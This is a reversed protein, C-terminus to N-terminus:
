ELDNGELDHIVASTNAKKYHYKCKVWVESQYGLIVSAEAVLRTDMMKEMGVMLSMGLFPNKDFQEEAYFEILLKSMAVSWSMTQTRNGKFSHLQGPILTTTSTTLLRNFYSGNPPKKTADDFPSAYFEGRAVDAVAWASEFQQGTVPDVRDSISKPEFYNGKIEYVRGKVPNANVVDTAYNATDSPTQNQVNLTIGVELDLMLQQLPLIATVIPKTVGDTFEYLIANMWHCQAPESFAAQITTRLLTAVTQYPVGAAIPVTLQTQTSSSNSIYTIDLQHATVIGFKDNWNVISRGARKVLACLLTRCFARFVEAVPTGAGVYVCQPDDHVGGSELCIVSGMKQYESQKFQQNLPKVKSATVHAHNVTATGGVRRARAKRPRSVSMARSKSTSRNQTRGRSRAPTVPSVKRPPVMIDKKKWVNRSGRGYMGARAYPNMGRSHYKARHYASGSSVRGGANASFMKAGTHSLVSRSIGRIANRYPRQGNM